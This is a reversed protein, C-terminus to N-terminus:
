TGTDELRACRISPPASPTPKRPATVITACPTSAATPLRLVCAGGARCSLGLPRPPAVSRRPPQSPLSRIQLVNFQGSPPTRSPLHQGLELDGSRVALAKGAGLGQWGQSCGQSDCLRHEETASKLIGPLPNDEARCPSGQRANHTERFREPYSRFGNKGRM